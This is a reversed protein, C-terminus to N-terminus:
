KKFSCAKKAEKSGHISQDRVLSQWSVMAWAILAGGVDCFEFGMERIAVHATGGWEVGLLPLIRSSTISLCLLRFCLSGERDM